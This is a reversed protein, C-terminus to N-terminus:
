VGFSCEGNVHRVRLGYFSRIVTVIASALIWIRFFTSDSKHPALRFLRPRGQFVTQIESRSQGVFAFVVYCM